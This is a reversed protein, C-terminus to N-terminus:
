SQPTVGLDFLYVSAGTERARDLKKGISDLYDLFLREEDFGPASTHIGASFPYVHSFLIWVRGKGRLQELDTRFLKWDETSHRGAIEDMPELLHRESYYQFSMASAYYIYLIDGKLRLRGALRM